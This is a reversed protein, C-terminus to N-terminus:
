LEQGTAPALDRGRNAPRLGSTGPSLRRAMRVGAVVAWTALGASGAFLIALKPNETTAMVPGALAYALGGVVALATAVRGAGLERSRGGVLALAAVSIGVAPTAVAQLVLHLDALPTPDGAHIADADSSALLHPVTEIAAFGAGAAATWALLRLRPAWSAGLARVLLVLAVALVGFGAMTLLHSGAWMSSEFMGALGQEFEASRDVRPHLVGGLGILLGASALAIAGTRGGSSSSRSQPEVATKM